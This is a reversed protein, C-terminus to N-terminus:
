NLLFLIPIESFYSNLLFLNQPLKFRYQFNYHLIIAADVPVFVTRGAALMTAIPCQISYCVDM